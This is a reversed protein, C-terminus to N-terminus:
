ADLPVGDYPEDDLNGSAIYGALAVRATYDPWSLSPDTDNM